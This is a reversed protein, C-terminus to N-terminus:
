GMATGSEDATDRYPFMENLKEQRKKCGGCPKVLGGTVTHIAKAVTDGLGRSRKPAIPEPRAKCPRNSGNWEPDRVTVSRPRGCESCIWWGPEPTPAGESWPIWICKNM